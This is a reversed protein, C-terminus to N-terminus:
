ADLGGCVAVPVAQLQRTARLCDGPALADLLPLDAAIRSAISQRLEALRARELAHAAAWISLTPTKPPMTRHEPGSPKECGRERPLEGLPLGPLRPTLVQWLSLDSAKLTPQGRSLM